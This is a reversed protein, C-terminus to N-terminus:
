TGGGPAYCRIRLTGHEIVWWVVPAGNLNPVRLIVEDPVLRWGFQHWRAWYKGQRIDEEAETGDRENCCSLHPANPVKQSRLWDITSKALHPYHAPDHAWAPSALCLFLVGCLAGWPRALTM